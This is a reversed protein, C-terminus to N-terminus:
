WPLAEGNAHRFTGTQELTLEDIRRVLMAASEAPLMGSGGTMATAVLGPHLLQVAIGAPRLDHALNVGAMNVAAKSMRYGYNGGSSNDGMSGVRSTIIVVKAGARLNARVAAAVRLPGLANVEYQRRMRDFALDPFREQTLVGANLILVDV